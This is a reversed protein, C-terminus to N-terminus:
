LLKSRPNLCLVLSIVHPYILCPQMMEKTHPGHVTPLAARVVGKTEALWSGCSLPPTKAASPLPYVLCLRHRLWSPLPYVLCLRHRRRSLCHFCWAFATDKSM